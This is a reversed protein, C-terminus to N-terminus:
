KHLLLLHESKLFCNQDSMKTNRNYSCVTSIKLVPQKNCWGVNWCVTEWGPTSCTDWPARYHFRWSTESQSPDSFMGQLRSRAGHRRREAPAKGILGTEDNRRSIFVRWSEVPFQFLREFLRKKKRRELVKNVKKKGREWIM